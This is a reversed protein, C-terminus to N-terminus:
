EPCPGFHSKVFGVDYSSVSGDGSLDAEDCEPVGTGVLCGYKAKVFGVDYPSVVGDGSLDWPCQGGSECQYWWVSFTDIAGEDISNNPSDTVSFRVLVQSTPDIFDGMRIMREMWGDTHPVSEILVWSDGDNSIEVDMRDEDLDDNTFWRAYKLMPDVAGALDLM